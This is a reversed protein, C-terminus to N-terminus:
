HGRPLFSFAKRQTWWIRLRQLGRAFRSRLELTGAFRDEADPEDAITIGFFDRHKRHFERLAPPGSELTRSLQEAHLRYWFLPEAVYMTRAGARIARFWFETDAHPIATDYGGLQDWLTRRIMCTMPLASGFAFERPDHVVYSIEGAPRTSHFRAIPATSADTGDPFIRRDTYIMDGNAGVACALCRAVFTPALLDDDCLIVVFAGASANVAANLKEPWNLPCYQVIVQLEAGALDQQELASRFAEPVMGKRHSLIIVSVSPRPRAITVPARELLEHVM